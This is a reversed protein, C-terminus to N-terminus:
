DWSRRRRCTRGLPHSCPDDCGLLVGDRLGRALQCTYNTHSCNTHTFKAHTVRTHAILTHIYNAHAYNTNTHLSSRLWSSCWGTRGRALQTYCCRLLLTVITYCHHLLPTVATYCCHLLLSSRLWSTFSRRWGRALQFSVFTSLRICIPHHSIQFTEDSNPSSSYPFNRWIHMPSWDDADL